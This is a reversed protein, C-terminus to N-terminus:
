SNQVLMWGGALVLLTGAVRAIIRGAPIVKELLVLIALAAIWFLNMVGGVFLLLMLVWCCGVCYIGHRLGLM